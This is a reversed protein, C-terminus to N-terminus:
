QQVANTSYILLKSEILSQNINGKMGPALEECKTHFNGALCLDVTIICGYM